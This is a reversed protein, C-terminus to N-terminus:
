RAPFPTSLVTEIESSFVDLQAQRLFFHRPYLSSTDLPVSKILLSKSIYRPRAASLLLDARISTCPCIDSRIHQVPLHLDISNRHGGVVESQGFAM